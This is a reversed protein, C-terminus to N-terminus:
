LRAYTALPRCRVRYVPGDILPEYWHAVGEDFRCYYPKLCPSKHDSTISRGQSFSQELNVAERIIQEVLCAPPKVKLLSLILCAFEMHLAEDRAILENSFCLGPLLGRKKLWFISAFSSSFFIGEVAAFAVLRLAFSSKMDQIWRICWQAKAHITPINNIAEFLFQQEKHDGILTSILLSYTESHINERYLCLSFMQTM